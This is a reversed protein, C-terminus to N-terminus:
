SSSYYCFAMSQTVQVALMSKECNQLSFNQSWPTLMTQKKTVGQNVSLWGNSTDECPLSLLSIGNRKRKSLAVLGIVPARCSIMYGLIRGLTRGGFIMMSCPNWCVYKHLSICCDILVRSFSFETWSFLYLSCHSKSWKSSLLSKGVKTEIHLIGRAHSKWPLNCSTLLM